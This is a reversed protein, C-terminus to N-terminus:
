NGVVDSGVFVTLLDTTSASLSASLLANNLLGSIRLAEKEQNSSYIIVTRSENAESEAGLEIVEYGAAQLKLKTEAGYGPKGSRNIVKLKPLNKDIVFNGLQRERVKQQYIIEESSLKVSADSNLYTIEYSRQDTNASTFYWFMTIVFICVLVIAFFFLRYRVVFNLIVKIQDFRSASSQIKEKLDLLGAEVPATIKPKKTILLAQQANNPTFNRGTVNIGALKLMHKVYLRVLWTVTVIFLLIVVAIGILLKYPIVWFTTKASAFQREESGYALTAVATYRGIDSISWEGKWNFTFLRITEPLVNGFQSAQNIPIVGREQGWMNKIRIDGQPQLHVNGKNEFRMDFTVEPSSLYTGQSTFERITGLEYIDGAVRAFFLSTIMQSTQVKAQGPTNVVPRTGVLIAAFHGGPSADFPVLVSVPIEKSQERPIVIPTKEIRIWEALSVGEAGTEPIPVFRGDGGEGQPKFNVVDVYVTLDYDNVNIIRLTSRWEQGPEVSIDYLSPSISLTTSNQALVPLAFSWLLSVLILTWWNNIKSTLTMNM